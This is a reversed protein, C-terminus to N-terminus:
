SFRLNNNNILCSYNFACFIYLQAFLLAFNEFKYERRMGNSSVNREGVLRSYRVEVEVDLKVFGTPV